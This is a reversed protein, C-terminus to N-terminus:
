AGQPLPVVDVHLIEEFAAIEALCAESPRRSVRLKTCTALAGDFVTNAVEEVNIGHRKLVTFTNALAGVKDLMRVVVAFRAPSAECVNVVNPVTEETLFSRVIRAVEQATALQAEQTSAGIHPTAYVLAGRQVSSAPVVAADTPDTALQASFAASGSAPEDPFVDLGVRLQKKPALERLADYDLVEARATNVVM